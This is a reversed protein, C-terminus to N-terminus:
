SLSNTLADLNDLWALFAPEDTEKVAVTIATSFVNSTLDCIIAVDVPPVEGTLSEAWENFVRKRISTSDNGDWGGTTWGDVVPKWGEITTDYYGRWGDTHVYGRTINLESPEGYEDEINIDTVYIKKPGDSEDQYTPGYLLVTSAYNGANEYCPYCVEGEKVSSYQYDDCDLDIQDNCEICNIIRTQDTTM